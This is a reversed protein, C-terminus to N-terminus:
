HEVSFRFGARHRDKKAEYLSQGGTFVLDAKELLRRENELLEPPAFKFASLEDMCDFVDVLPKLDAAFEAGDTHLVMRYFKRNQKEAVLEDLM